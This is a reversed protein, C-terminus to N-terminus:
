RAPGLELVRSFLPPGDLLRRDHRVLEGNTTGAWLAGDPLLTATQLGAGTWRGSWVRYSLTRRGSADPLLASFAYRSVGDLGVVLVEDKGPVPVAWMVDLGAEDVLGLRPVGAFRYLM